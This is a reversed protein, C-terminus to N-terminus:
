KETALFNNLNQMRPSKLHSNISTQDLHNERSRASRLGTEREYVHVFFCVFIRNPNEFLFHLFFVVPVYAVHLIRLSNSRQVNKSLKVEVHARQTVRFNNVFRLVFFSSIRARKEQPYTHKTSACLFFVIQVRLIVCAFYIINNRGDNVNFEFSGSGLSNVCYRYFYIFLFVIGCKRCRFRMIILITTRDYM